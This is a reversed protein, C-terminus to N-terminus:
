LSCRIQFNPLMHYLQQQANISNAANKSINFKEKQKGNEYLQAEMKTEEQQNEKSLEQEIESSVLEVNCCKCGYLRKQNNHIIFQNLLINKYKLTANPTKQSIKSFCLNKTCILYQTVDELKIIDNQHINYTSLDNIIEILCNEWFTESIDVNLITLIHEVKKVISLEGYVCAMLIVHKLTTISFLTNYHNVTQNLLFNVIPFHKNEVAATLGIDLSYLSVQNWLHIVQNLDGQDCAIKFQEEIKYTIYITNM